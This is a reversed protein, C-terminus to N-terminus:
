FSLLLLLVIIIQFKLAIVLNHGPLVNLNCEFQVGLISCEFGAEPLLSLSYCCFTDNVRPFNLSM